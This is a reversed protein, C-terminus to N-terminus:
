QYQGKRRFQAKRDVDQQPFVFALIPGFEYIDSLDIKLKSIPVVSPFPAICPQSKTGFAQFQAAFPFTLWFVFGEEGM